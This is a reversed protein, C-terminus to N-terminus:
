VSTTAINTKDKWSTVQLKYSTEQLMHLKWCKISLSPPPTPSALTLFIAYKSPALSRDSKLPFTLAKERERERGKERKKVKVWVCVSNVSCARYMYVVIETERRRKRDYNNM